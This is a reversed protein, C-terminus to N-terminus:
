SPDTRLRKLVDLSPYGDAPLGAARQYRRIADRTRKGILGDNEPLGFGAAALLKQLEQRETRGLPRQDRQWALAMPPRGKLVDSLQGVALAYATSANYRLISRFNQFVLLAPGNAGMPLLLAAKLDTRRIPEGDIRVVGKALWAQVSQTKDKELGALDHDFGAPLSVPYGWPEGTKWGSKVLYNATSGLADFYDTWIDRRGDKDFDVAYQLFTTPIFQTHGMAGAWSGTMAAPPVDGRQIIKLAALLQQEGFRARRGGDWALTALSRVINKDGLNTGYSTEIGWVAVIVERPVGYFAEVADLVGSLETLKQRGVRMRKESLLGDLYDWIPREHEPQATFKQLIREDPVVGAFAQDFVSGTIGSAVAKVRFRERWDEFSKKHVTSAIATRTPDVVSGSLFAWGCLASALWFFPRVIYVM